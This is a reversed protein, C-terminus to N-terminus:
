LHNENKLEKILNEKDFDIFKSGKDQLIKDAIVNSLPYILNFHDFGYIPYFKVLKNKNKSQMEFLSFINGGSGEFISTPSTITYLWEIPARLKNETKNSIDYNLSEQGYLVVRSTAGLIFVSRFIDASEAVLLALTGGTSHGGLYIRTSDIYDLTALYKAAAVVDDVEGYFSENNGPNKNGGRLSVYMTVIGKKRFISGTQDNDPSMETWPTSSIGNSMGGVLWIIAPHKRKLNDPKSVYAPLYGVSSKYTVLTFLEKPPMEVDRGENAQITIKTNFGEKATVLNTKDAFVLTPIIIVLLTFLRLMFETERFFTILIHEQIIKM